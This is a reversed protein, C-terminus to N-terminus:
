TLDDCRVQNANCAEIIQIALKLHGVYVDTFLISRKFEMRKMMFMYDTNSVAPAPLQYPHALGKTTEDVRCMSSSYLTADTLKRAMNRTLRVMTVIGMVVSMVGTFIPNSFGQSPKCADDMPFCDQTKAGGAAKVVSAIKAFTFYWLFQDITEELRKCCSQKNPYKPHTLEKFCSKHYANRGELREMELDFTDAEEITDLVISRRQELVISQFGKPSPWQELVGRNLSSRDSESVAM